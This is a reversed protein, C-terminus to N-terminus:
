VFIGTHQDMWHSEQLSQMTELCKTAKGLLIPITILLVLTTTIEVMVAFLVNQKFFFMEKKISFFLIACIM